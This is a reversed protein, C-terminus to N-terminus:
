GGAIRKLDNWQAMIEEANDEGLSVTIILLNRATSIKKEVDYGDAELARVLRELQRIRAIRM